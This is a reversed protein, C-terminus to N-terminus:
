GIILRTGKLREREILYMAIIHEYGNFDLAKYSKLVKYGKEEMERIHKRKEEITEYEYTLVEKILKMM